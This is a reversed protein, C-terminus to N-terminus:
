SSRTAYKAPLPPIEGWVSKADMIIGLPIIKMVHLINKTVSYDTFPSLNQKMKQFSLSKAGRDTYVKNDVKRFKWVADLFSINFYQAADIFITVMVM